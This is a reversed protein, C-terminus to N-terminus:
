ILIYIYPISMEPRNIAWEWAPAAHIIKPLSQYYVYAFLSLMPIVGSVTM